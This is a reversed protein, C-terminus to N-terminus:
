RPRPYLDQDINSRTTVSKNISDTYSQQSGSYAMSINLQSPAMMPSSPLPLDVSGTLMLVAATMTPREEANAQVCLLGIQICRMVESRSCNDILMQDTIEFSREENWLRWTEISLDETQPSHRPKRNKRGSVIELLMIGFSYVDSKDTYEGTMIYEPAMYGQTGVIRVTSTFKHSSGFLKALGFDAIKANMDEDLLINAPKLDRHVITVRSDEHLYQLGRAIGMIIKYRTAWDLLPRYRPDFLFRDVSSNPMFEYVLLKEDGESCIGVLRVLNKHQLKALFRAETLFEKTGQGSAGHSLRKIAVEQGNELTGKYVLGFGGEGLTNETSFDSTAIKLTKLDYQMFGTDTDDHLRISSASPADNNTEKPRRHRFCIWLVIALVILGVSGGVAIALIVALSLSKKKVEQPAEDLNSHDKLFPTMDYRLQCSPLFVMAWVRKSCCLTLQALASGLCYKCGTRDIDPTCQAFSYLKTSSTWAATNSAYHPYSSSANKILDNITNELIPAFEAYNSVNVIASYHIGPFTEYWGFINRNAYRLMCEYYWAIGEVSLLCKEAILKTADKVCTSCDDLSLDNRCQFLGYVKNSTDGITSNYFNVNSSESDLGTLLLKLNKEFVSGKTYNFKEECGSLVYTQADIQQGSSYAIPLSSHIPSIGSMMPPSPLLLDVSGTLILVVETMTPRQSGNAQVCLLGIQICRVVESSSCNDVVAEYTIEFSREENWLRWAEISLDEKQTSQRVTRNKQGSVIELLMIGFSYVDSKDSYEGTMLYEPATYGQTGVIRLTNGFKEPGGFLKALGFYAIKANMEEDLLINGPKLDRHIITLRSDEHLYQLGRAIGMIIKFRTVWDLLPRNREDFLFRDLSANSMFEYVLLKEEGESCFGLLKVLNRHQLKALVGAETMFEQTGQGSTGKSLRKIALQLGNGLTGKYVIGFGGEGLKTESPESANCCLFMKNYAQKLCTCSFADIDPTCQAFTYLQEFLTLKAEVSAFHSSSSSANKILMNMTNALIPAFEAYNSVNDRKFQSALHSTDSLSFINLNGYRLM